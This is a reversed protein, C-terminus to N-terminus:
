TSSREVSFTWNLAQEHIHVFGLLLLLSQTVVAGCWWWCGQSRGVKFGEQAGEAESNDNDRSRNDEVQM